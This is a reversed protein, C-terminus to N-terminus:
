KEKDPCDPSDTTGYFVSDTLYSAHFKYEAKGDVAAMAGAGIASDLVVVDHM